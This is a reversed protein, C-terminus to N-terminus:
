YGLKPDVIGILREGARYRKVNEIFRSFAHFNYNDLGVANHPTIVLNPVDWLPSDPPLPEQEFVDVAAGRLQGSRLADALAAMDTVGGRSVDALFGGPRMAGIEARGVLGRTEPTFAVTVACVDCQALMARRESSPYMRDVNEPLPGGDHRRTALVTMGFPKALRAIQAGIEGFGVIGLTRGHLDLHQLRKWEHARQLDLREPLRKAMLLLQALVFEAITRAAVGKSSTLTVKSAPLGFAQYQDTGSGLNAIWRLKPARELTDVPLSLAYIVEAEPLADLLQKPFSGTLPLLAERPKSSFTRLNALAPPLPAYIVDVDGIARLRDLDAADVDYAVLVKLTPM